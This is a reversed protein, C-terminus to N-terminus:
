LTPALAAAKKPFNPLTVHAHLTAPNSANSGNISAPPRSDGPMAGAFISGASAIFGWALLLPLVLMALALWMRTRKDRRALMEHEEKVEPERLGIASSHDMPLYRGGEYNM